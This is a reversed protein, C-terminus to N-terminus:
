TGLKGEVCAARFAEAFAAVAAPIEDNLQMLTEKNLPYEFEWSNIADLLQTVTKEGGKAFLEVFDLAEGDAPRIADSTAYMANLYEGFGTRTRYNFVAPIAGSTGDPMTFKVPISKFTKPTTGLKIKTAM